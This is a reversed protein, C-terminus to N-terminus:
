FLRDNVGGFLLLVREDTLWVWCLLVLELPKRGNVGGECLSAISCRSKM